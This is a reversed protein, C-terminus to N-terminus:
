AAIGMGLSRELRGRSEEEAILADAADASDKQSSPHFPRVGDAIEQAKRELVDWDKGKNKDILSEITVTTDSLTVDWLDADGLKIVGYLDVLLDGYHVTGLKEIGKGQALQPHQALAEAAETKTVANAM